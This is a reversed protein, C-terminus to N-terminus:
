NFTSSDAHLHVIYKTGADLQSIPRYVFETHNVQNGQDFKM